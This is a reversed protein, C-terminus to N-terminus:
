LKSQVLNDYLTRQFKSYVELFQTPTEEMINTGCIAAIGAKPDIFYHTKAVGSRDTLQREEEESSQM